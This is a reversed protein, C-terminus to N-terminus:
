RNKRRSDTTRVHVSALVEDRALIANVLSIAASVLCLTCFGHVLLVQTLVLVIATVALGAVVVGFGLVLNPDTRWRNPGGIAGLV